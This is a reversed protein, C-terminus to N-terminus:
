HVCSDKNFEVKTNALDGMKELLVTLDNLVLIFGKDKPSIGKTAKGHATGLVFEM